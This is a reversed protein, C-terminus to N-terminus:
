PQIPNQNVYNVLSLTTWNSGDAGEIRHANKEFNTNDQRILRSRSTRANRTERRAFTTITVRAYWVLM